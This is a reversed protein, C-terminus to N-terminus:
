PEGEPASMDGLRRFCAEYALLMLGARDADGEDLVSADAVPTRFTFLRDDSRFHQCTLREASGGLDILEEVVLEEIKDGTHMLDSEISESLWRDPTVLSIWVRGGDADVRYFAPEASAEAACELRSDNLSVAGFVGAGRAREAVRNLLEILSIKTRSMM